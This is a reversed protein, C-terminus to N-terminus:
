TSGSDDAGLHRLPCGCPGTHSSRSRPRRAPTRPQACLRHAQESSTWVPAECVQALRPLLPTARRLSSPQLHIM